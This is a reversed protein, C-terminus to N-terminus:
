VRLRKNEKFDKVVEKWLITRWQDMRSHEVNGSIGKRLRKGQTSLKPFQSYVPESAALWVAGRRGTLEKSLKQDVEKLFSKLRRDALKSLDKPLKGVGKEYAEVNELPWNNNELEILSDNHGKYLHAENKSLSLVWYNLGPNEWKAYADTLFYDDVYVTHLEEEPIWSIEQISNSFFLVLCDKIPRNGVKDILRALKEKYQDSVPDPVIELHELMQRHLHKLELKFRKSDGFSSPEFSHYVSLCVEGDIKRIKEIDM